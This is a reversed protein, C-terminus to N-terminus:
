REQHLLLFAPRSVWPGLWRDLEKRRLQEFFLQLHEGVIQRVDAMMEFLVMLTGPSKARALETAIPRGGFPMTDVM